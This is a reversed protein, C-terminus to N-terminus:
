PKACATQGVLQQAVNQAALCFEESLDKLFAYGLFSLGVTKQATPKDNYFSM